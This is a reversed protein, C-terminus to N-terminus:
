GGLFNVPDEAGTPKTGARDVDTEGGVDSYGLDGCSAEGSWQVKGKRGIIGFGFVLYDLLDEIEHVGRFVGDDYRIGTGNAVANQFLKVLEDVFSVKGGKHGRHAFTADVFRVGGKAAHVGPVYGTLVHAQADLVCLQDQIDTAELRVEVRAPKRVSNGTSVRDFEM